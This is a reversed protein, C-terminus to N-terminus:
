RNEDDPTPNPGVGGSTAQELAFVAGSADGAEKVGRDLNINSVYGAYDRKLVTRIKEVQTKTMGARGLLNNAEMPNMQFLKAMMQYDTGKPNSASRPDLNFTGTAEDKNLGLRKIARGQIVRTRGLSVAIGTPRMPVSRRGYSTFSKFGSTFQITDAAPEIAGAWRETNGREKRKQADMQKRAGLLEYRLDAQRGHDYPSGYKTGTATIARQLDANSAIDYSEGTDNGLDDKVNFRLVREGSADVAEDFVGTKKLEDLFESKGGAKEHEAYISLDNVAVFKKFKDDWVAYGLGREKNEGEAHEQLHALKEGIQEKSLGAHEYMSSLVDAFEVADYYAEFDREAAVKAQADSSIANGYKDAGRAAYQAALRAVYKPRERNMLEIMVGDEHRGGQMEYSLAEIDEYHHSDLFAQVKEEESLPMKEWESRKHAIMAAQNLRGYYTKQGLSPLRGKLMNKWGHWETPMIRNLADRTYGVAPQYAELEKEHARAEWAEKAVRPNFFQAARYLKARGLQGSKQAKELRRTLARSYSRGALGLGQKGLWQGAAFPAAIGKKAFDTIMDAGYIGLKSAVIIGAWMFALVVIYIVILELSASLPVKSGAGTNALFTQIDPAVETGSRFNSGQTISLGKEHLAITLRLFFAIIPTFFAYKIFNHWWEESQHHTAPLVRLAYAFPSLIMLVWLAIIRILTYFALAAFTIAVGLEMIFQFLISATSSLAGATNWSWGRIAYTTQDLILIKFLQRLGALGEDKPLFTFQIIDAIQVIVRAIVLSFNVLVAMIILEVLIHRYNYSEIRLITAFGLFILVLIFLMNVIDRVITWGFQITSAINAADMSLTVDLIPLVAYATITWLLFHLVAVVATLIWNIVSLFPGGVDFSVGGGQQSQTDTSIVIEQQATVQKGDINATATVTYTGVQLFSKEVPTTIVESQSGLSGGFSWNILIRTTGPANPDQTETVVQGDKTYVASLIRWLYGRPSTQASITLKEGQPILFGINGEARGLESGILSEGIVLDIEQIIVVLNNPTGPVPPKFKTVEIAKTVANQAQALEAGEVRQVESVEVQNPGSGLFFKNQAADRRFEWNFDIASQPVDYFWFIGYRKATDATIDTNFKCTITNGAQYQTTNCLLSAVAQAKGLPAFQLLLVGLLLVAFLRPRKKFIKSLSKM